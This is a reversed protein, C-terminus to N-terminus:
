EPVQVVFPVTIVKGEHQFQGWIKYTGSKPFETMFRAEPGMAKEDTPHNHIYLEADSSIIVVHGVAGLYPELNTIPDGSKEDALTFTMEVEQSAKLQDFSLNVKKGDVVKTMEINPVIAENTPDGKVTLWYSETMQNGGTPIFDAILKYDGGKPFAMNVEFNGDGKYEPHLHKFFSLDRSVVILHLLKEHNIDFKQISEGNSNNFQVTVSVEDDIEPTTPTTTWIAEVSMEDNKTTDNGQHHIEHISQGNQKSTGCATILITFLTLIIGLRLIKM